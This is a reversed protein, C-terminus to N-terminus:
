PTHYDHIYGWVEGYQPDPHQVSLTPLIIIPLRQRRRFWLSRNHLPFRRNFLMSRRCQIDALEVPYGDKLLVASLLHVLSSSMIRQAFSILTAWSIFSMVKESCLTLPLDFPYGLGNRIIWRGKDKRKANEGVKSVNLNHKRSNRAEWDASFNRAWIMKFFTEAFKM